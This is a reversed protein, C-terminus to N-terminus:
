DCYPFRKKFRRFLLPSFSIEDKNLSLIESTVEDSFTWVQEGSRGDILRFFLLKNDRKLRNSIATTAASSVIATAAQVVPTSGAMVGGGFGPITRRMTTVVCADVKLLKAIIAIDMFQVKLFDIGAKKLIADTIQWPQVEVLLHNTDTTITKYLAEQLQIGYKQELARFAQISSDSLNRYEAFAARVPLVAIIKHDYPVPNNQAVTYFPWSCFLWFLIKKM